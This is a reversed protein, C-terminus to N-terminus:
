GKFILAEKQKGKCFLAKCLNSNCICYGFSGRINMSPTYASEMSLEAYFRYNSETTIFEKDLTSAMFICTGLFFDFFETLAMVDHSERKETRCQPLIIPRIAVNIHEDNEFLAMHRSEDSERPHFSLQGRNQIPFSDIQSRRLVQAPKESGLFAANDVCADVDHATM